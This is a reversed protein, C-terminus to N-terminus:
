LPFGLAIHQGATRRGGIHKGAKLQGIVVADQQAEVPVVVGQADNVREVCLDVLVGVEGDATGGPRALGVGHLDHGKPHPHPTDLAKNQRRQLAVLKLPGAMFHAAGVDLQSGAGGGADIDHLDAGGDGRFHFQDVLQIVAVDVGHQGTLYLLQHDEKGQQDGVHVILLLLHQVFRQNLGVGLEADGM